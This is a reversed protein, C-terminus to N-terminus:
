RTQEAAGPQANHLVRGLRVVEKNLSLTTLPKVLAQMQRRKNEQPTEDLEALVLDSVLLESDASAKRWFAQTAQQRDPTREDFYTSPISTDLYIRM